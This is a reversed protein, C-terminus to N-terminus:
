LLFYSGLVFSVLANMKMKMKAVSPNLPKTASSSKSTSSSSSSSSSSKSSTSSIKSTSSSSSTSSSNTSSTKPSSSFFDLLRSRKGEPPASQGSCEHDEPARHRVDFRAVTILMNFCM